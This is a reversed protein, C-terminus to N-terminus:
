RPRERAGAPLAPRDLLQGIAQAMAGADGVPVLPGFRGGQLVERPGVPCDTAVVPTGCALAEILVNGFGEFRSAPVFVAARRMWALPQRTRGLLEVVAQLGLAAVLAELGAREPGEGALLLHAEPRQRHLLSFAHLLTPLDKEPSLRSM